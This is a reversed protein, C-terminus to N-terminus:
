RKWQSTYSSLLSAIFLIAFWFCTHRYFQERVMKAAELYFRAQKADTTIECLDLYHNLLGLYHTVCYGILIICVIRLGEFFLKM